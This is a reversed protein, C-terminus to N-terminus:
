VAIMSLMVPMAMLLVDVPIAIPDIVEVAEAAILLLVPISMPPILMSILLSQLTETLITEIGM